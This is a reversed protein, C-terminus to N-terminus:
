LNELLEKISLAIYRADDSSMETHMPLSLVEKCAIQANPLSLNSDLYNSFAQQRHLPVPYYVRTPIGKLELKKKLEDRKGNKVAITYQNYSHLVGEANYPINIQEVDKLISDYVGAVTRRATIFDDLLPLKINLIAAQITDLRSNIGVIDHHYQKGAGHSALMKMRSGLYDDNTFCAGGDGFCALNKSPFFSTCGIHGITGAKYRVGKYMCSAGLSQAVDEIVYLGHNNALEMISTMDAPQGFLHVPLVVKTKPTIRREIDDVDINYTKSDIDAFVPTLGLLAIVEASAVFSFATTIVEDGPQLDLAMLALQLADTGNGCPIVKEVSLYSELANSFSQVQPGNIYQASEVVQILASDIEKKYRLYQAKLDVMLLHDSAKEAVM